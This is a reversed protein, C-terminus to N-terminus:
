SHRLRIFDSGAPKSVTIGPKYYLMETRNIGAPATPKRADSNKSDSMFFGKFNIPTLMCM